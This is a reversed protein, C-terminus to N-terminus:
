LKSASGQAEAADCAAGIRKAAEALDEETPGIFAFGIHCQKAAGSSSSETHNPGYMIKGCRAEVGRAMMQVNVDDSNLVKLEMWVFFGGSRQPPAALHRGAHAELADCFVKIKRAYVNRAHAIIKEFRGSALLEGVAYELFVSNGQMGGVAQIPALWEPQSHLYGLRLGTGLTKSFTHVTVVGFGGSLASLFCPQKDYCYMEYPEDSVIVANHSAALRLLQEARARSITTGTPNNNVPQVYIMKVRKGDRKAAMIQHEIEDVRVGEEDMGVCVVSAGTQVMLNVTFTWLPSEVIAVDGPGLYSAMVNKLGGSNGSTMAIQDSTVAAGRTRTLYKAIEVKLLESAGYELPAPSSRQWGAKAFEMLDDYPLLLSDPKGATMTIVKTEPKRSARATVERETPFMGASMGLYNQRFANYKLVAENGPAESAQKDWLGKLTSEITAM